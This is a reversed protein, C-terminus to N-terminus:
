RNGALEHGNTSLRREAAARMTEIPAPRGTWWEFQRAAQAVLMELGGITPCGAAAADALLRTRVPKYVLDYVLGGGQLVAEPVPSDAVAPYTGVPTANVLLDWSGPDPAFARGASASALAAAELARTRSRGHVTVRAGRSAASFAVARAAGGTGVVVVRRGALTVGRADLPALFGAVDTNCGRWGGNVAKLTNVVSLVRAPDRDDIAAGEALALKFPATVSAGAVRLARAFQRFDSASSAELPLYVADEGTEDFAANHMVPSVSHGVPNGVVGFVRTAPGTKGFRFEQVMRAASIEGPAPSESVFTWCSGFRAALVRTAVGPLGMALLIRAGDPEAANLDLLGLTDSLARATVAIKVIDAGTARMARWRGALDAPVGDYDHSSLVIGRGGRVSLVTSYASDWEVDVYDAGLRAAEALIALRRDEPGEFAGGERTPRCTVMVPGKRDALAGAVDIDHTGDLRLEVVDATRAADDRRRRLEATTRATVTACLRTSLTTPM